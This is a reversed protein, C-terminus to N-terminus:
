RKVDGDGSLCSYRDGLGRLVGEMKEVKEFAAREVASGASVHGDNMLQLKDVMTMLQLKDVMTRCEAQHDYRAQRAEERLISLAESAQSTSYPGARTSLASRLEEHRSLLARSRKIITPQTPLDFTPRAGPSATSATRTTYFSVLGSSSPSSSLRQFSRLTERSM